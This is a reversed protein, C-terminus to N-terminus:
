PNDVMGLAWVCRKKAWRVYLVPDETRMRKADLYWNERYQMRLPRDLVDATCMVSTEGPAANTLEVKIADVIQELQKAADDARPKVLKYAACLRGLNSDPEPHITSM